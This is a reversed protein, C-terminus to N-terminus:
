WFSLYRILGRRRTEDIEARPREDSLLGWQFQLVLPM